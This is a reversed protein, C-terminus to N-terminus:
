SALTVATCAALLMAMFVRSIPERYGAGFVVWAIQMKKVRFFPAAYAGKHLRISPLRVFKLM